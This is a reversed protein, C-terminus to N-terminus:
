KIYKRQKLRQKEAFDDPLADEDDSAKPDSKVEEKTIHKEFIQALHHPM